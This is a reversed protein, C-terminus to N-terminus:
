DVLQPVLVWLGGRLEEVDGGAVSGTLLHDSRNKVMGLALGLPVLVGVLAGRVV